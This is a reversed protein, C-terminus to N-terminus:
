VDLLELGDVSYFISQGNDPVDILVVFAKTKFLDLADVPFTVGPHVADQKNGPPGRLRKVLDDDVLRLRAFVLEADTARHFEEPATCVPHRANVTWVGPRADLHRQRRHLLCELGLSVASVYQHLTAIRVLLDLDRFSNVSSQRAILNM